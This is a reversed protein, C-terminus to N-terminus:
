KLSDKLDDETLESPPILKYRTEVKVRERMFKDLADKQVIYTPGVKQAPLGNAIWYRLVRVPVGREKEIDELTYWGQMMRIKHRRNLDPVIRVSKKCPKDRDGM